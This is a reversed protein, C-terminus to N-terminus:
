MGFARNAHGCEPPLRANVVTETDAAESRMQAVQLYGFITACCAVALARMPLSNFTWGFAATILM